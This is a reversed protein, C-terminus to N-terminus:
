GKIEIKSFGNYLKGRLALSIYVFEPYEEGGTNNYIIQLNGFLKYMLKLSIPTMSDTIKHETHTQELENSINKDKNFILKYCLKLVTNM